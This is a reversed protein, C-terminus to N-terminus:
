SRNRIEPSDSAYRYARYVAQQKPEDRHPFQFPNLYDWVIECAPTVEFLRGPRGECILTNGNPLRQANSIGTSFFSDRPAGRYEWSVQQTTPDLEIVRSYSGGGIRHEGNDFILYNGNQLLTPAHQHSTIGQSIRWTMKGSGRDIVGVCSTQRFSVLLNGDPLEEVSNCHTWERRGDLPCIVEVEPDLHDRAHWEWITQGSRDIERLFDGVITGDPYSASAVGGQVRSAFEPGLVEWGLLLLNGSKLWCTDHHLVSDQYEWLVNGDWDLEVLAAFAGGFPWKETGDVCELFLNGTPLLEAGFPKLGRPPHWTRVTNAKLDLLHASDGSLTAFVTYGDFAQGADVHVLGRPSFPSYGM